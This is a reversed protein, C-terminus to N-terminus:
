FSLLLKQAETLEDSDNDDNNDTRSCSLRDCFNPYFCSM